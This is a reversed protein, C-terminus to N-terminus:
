SKSIHLFVGRVLVPNPHTVTNSRGKITYCSCQNQDLTHTVCVYRLQEVIVLQHTITTSCEERGYFLRLILGSLLLRIRPIKEHCYAFASQSGRNFYPYQARISLSAVAPHLLVPISMKTRYARDEETRCTRAVAILREYMLDRHHVEAIFRSPLNEALFDNDCM